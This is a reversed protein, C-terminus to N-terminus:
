RVDSQEPMKQGASKQDRRALLFPTSAYECPTSFPFPPM